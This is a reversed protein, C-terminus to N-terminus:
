DTVRRVCTEDIDLAAGLNVFDVWVILRGNAARREFRGRVGKLSGTIVEVPDGPVLRRAVELHGDTQLCRWCSWLQEGLMDSEAQTRPHLISCIERCGVLESKGLDQAIFVYGPFFPTVHTRRSRHSVTTKQYTPLYHPIGQAELWSACKKEHRSRVHLCSWREATPPEDERFLDVPALFPQCLEPM